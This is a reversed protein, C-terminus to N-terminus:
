EKAPAKPQLVGSEIERLAERVEDPTCLREEVLAGLLGEFCTGLAVVVATPPYANLSMILEEFQNICEEVLADDDSEEILSM